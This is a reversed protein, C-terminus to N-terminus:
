TVLEPTTVSVTCYSRPFTKRRSSSGDLRLPTAFAGYFDAVVGDLDVGLVFEDSPM